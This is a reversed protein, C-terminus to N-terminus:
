EDVASLGDDPSEKEQPWELAPLISFRVEKEVELEKQMIQMSLAWRKDMLRRRNNLTGALVDEEDAFNSELNEVEAGNKEMLREMETEQRQLLEELAKAQRDRMVNIKAQHLQKMNKELNYQQGLERLDRETVVRKPMDTSPNQGLGDCYAEMHKLRVRVNRESQDLTTRLELEAQVQRDELNASTKAHREKMKEVAGTHKEVLALKQESQRTYMLWKTKREYVRFRELEQLQNDRLALFEPSEKTREEAELLEAAEKEVAQRQLAEEEDRAAQREAEEVRRRELIEEGDCYNPCGVTADWVGGCVYCFQAKCRCTMHSCGQTLEVLNRCKYCRRWGSAEGIKLVAELESDSPCDHGLPHAGRKCMVCVRTHCNRCIVQFPYKPDIKSRPPIFEGCGPNSCFVRADWPTSYQQVAKLFSTQEDRSLISKVMSSPIPQTCCRPPMKAEDKCSQDIMIRLCKACYSHGCPLKELTQDPKFDERCASCCSCEINSPSTKRLRPHWVSMTFYSKKTSVSFVSPTSNHREPPPHSIFKPQDLNPSVQALYKDYQAFTLSRSRRRALATTLPTEHNDDDSSPPTLTTSASGESGTSATRAHTTDLTVSSDVGSTRGTSPDAAISIATPPRSLAIGLSAAKRLLEDLMSEANSANTQLVEAVFGTESLEPIANLAEPSNPLGTAM